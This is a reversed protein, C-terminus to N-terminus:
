PALDLSGAGMDLAATVLTSVPVAGSVVEAVPVWAVADTTGDADHM